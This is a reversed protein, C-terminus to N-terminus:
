HRPLSANLQLVELRIQFEYQQELEELARQQETLATPSMDAQLGSQTGNQVPQTDGVDYFQTHVNHTSHDATHPHVYAHVPIDDTCDDYPITSPISVTSDNTQNRHHNRTTMRNVTMLTYVTYSPTRSANYTRSTQLTATTM